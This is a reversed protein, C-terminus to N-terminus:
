QRAPLSDSYQSRQGPGRFTTKYFPFVHDSNHDAKFGQIHSLSHQFDRYLNSPRQVPQLLTRTDGCILATLAWLQVFGWPQLGCNTGAGCKNAETAPLQTDCATNRVAVVFVFDETTYTQLERRQALKYCFKICPKHWTHGTEIRSETNASLVTFSCPTWTKM